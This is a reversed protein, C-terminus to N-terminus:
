PDLRYGEGRVTTIEAEVGSEHLKRRLRLVAMDVLRSDGLYDYGWVDELLRLRSMVEGPHRALTSLLRHETTSLDVDDEGVVVRFALDDILLSGIEVRDGTSGPGQRRVVARARAALVKPEFPKTVYDDAGADLGAVIDGSEDRGTLLVIPVQSRQRIQRCVQLGDASPLGIDLVVLQYRNWAVRSVPPADPVAEVEFGSGGLVMTTLERVPRDDEIVLVRDSM